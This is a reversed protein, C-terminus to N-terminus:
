VKNEERKDRDISLLISLRELPLHWNPGEKFCIQGDHIKINPNLIFLVNREKVMNSLKTLSVSAVQYSKDQLNELLNVVYEETDFVPILEVLERKSMTSMAWINKAPGTTVLYLAIDPASEINSNYKKRPERHVLAM